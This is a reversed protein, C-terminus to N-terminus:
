SPAGPLYTLMHVTFGLVKSFMWPGFIALSVFVAIIKPIISLTSDNIQTVAQFLSVLVGVVVGFLLMPMSLELALALTTQLTNFVDAQSM